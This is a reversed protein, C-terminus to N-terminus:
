WLHRQGIEQPRRFDSTAFFMIMPVPGVVQDEFPGSWRMPTAWLCKMKPLDDVEPPLATFLTPPASELNGCSIKTAETSSSQAAM